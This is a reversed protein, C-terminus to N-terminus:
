YRSQIAAINAHNIFASCNTPQHFVLTFSLICMEIKDERIYSTIVSKEKKEPLLTIVEKRNIVSM